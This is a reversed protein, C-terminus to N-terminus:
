HGRCVDTMFRFIEVIPMRIIDAASIAATAMWVSAWPPWADPPFIVVPAAGATLAGDFDVLFDAGFAEALFLELDVVVLVIRAVCNGAATSVISPFHHVVPFPNPSESTTKVFFPECTEPIM